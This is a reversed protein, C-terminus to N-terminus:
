ELFSGEVEAEIFLLDILGNGQEFFESLKQWNMSPCSM